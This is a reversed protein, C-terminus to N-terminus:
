QIRLAAWLPSGDPAFLLAMLAVISAALALKLILGIAEELLESVRQGGEADRRDHSAAESRALVHRALAAVVV